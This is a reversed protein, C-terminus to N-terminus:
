KDLTLAPRRAPRVVVARHRPAARHADQRAPGRRFKVIAKQIAVTRPAKATNLSYVSPGNRLVDTLLGAMSDALPRNQLLHYRDLRYRHNRQLYVNNLSAGSYLVCDDIIFGKLHMVGLLERRQIPVGYIEVGPGLRQAM